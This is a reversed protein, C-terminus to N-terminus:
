KVGAKRIDILEMLLTLGAKAYKNQELFMDAFDKISGTVTGARGLAADMRAQTNKKRPYRAQREALSQLERTNAKIEEALANVLKEAIAKRDATTEAPPTLVGVIQERYAPDDRIMAFVQSKFTLYQEWSRDPGPELGKWLANVYDNWIGSAEDRTLMAIGKALVHGALYGSARAM